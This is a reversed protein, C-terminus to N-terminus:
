KPILVPDALVVYNAKSRNVPSALFALNTVGAVPLDIPVSQATGRLETRHLEANNGFVQFLIQGDAGLDAHLGVRLTLRSFLNGPLFWSIRKIGIGLGNVETREGNIQLALPVPDKGDRLTMDRQPHGWYPSGFFAAQPYFLSPAENPWYPSLRVPAPLVGEERALACVSRFADAVIGAALVASPRQAAASAQKDEAYVARVIDPVRGRAFVTGAQVRALLRFAAEAATAGQAAPTHTYGQLDFGGSELHSHLLMHEKGAPAPMYQGLLRYMNDGVSSHAPCTWDELMHALVGLHRAASAADNTKFSAVAHRIYYELMEYNSAADWPLHFNEFRGSYSERGTFDWVFRENGDKKYVWDPILCYGAGLPAREKGLLAADAPPLTELAARTIVTHADGWGFASAATLVAFLLLKM